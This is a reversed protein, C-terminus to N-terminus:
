TECSKATLEPSIPLPKVCAPAAKLVYPFLKSWVTPKIAAPVSIKWPLCVQRQVVIDTLPYLYELGLFSCQRICHLGYRSRPTYPLM